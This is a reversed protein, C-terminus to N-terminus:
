CSVSINHKVGGGRMWCNASLHCESSALAVILEELHFALYFGVARSARNQTRQERKETRRERNETRQRHAVNHDAHSISVPFEPLPQGQGTLTSSCLVADQRATLRDPHRCSRTQGQGTVTLSCLQVVCCLTKGHLSLTKSPTQLLRCEAQSLCLKLLYTLM